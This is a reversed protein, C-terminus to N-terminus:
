SNEFPILLELSNVAIDTGGDQIKTVLGNWRISSTDFECTRREISREMSAEWLTQYISLARRRQLKFEMELEGTAGRRSIQWIEAMWRLASVVAYIFLCQFVRALPLSMMVLHWRRWYTNRMSTTAPEGDKERGAALAGRLAQEWAIDLSLGM